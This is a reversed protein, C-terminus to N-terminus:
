DDREGQARLREIKIKENREREEQLWKTKQKQLELESVRKPDKDAQVSAPLEDRQPYM